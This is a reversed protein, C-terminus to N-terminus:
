GSVWSGQSETIGTDGGETQEIVLLEIAPTHWKKKEKKKDSIDCAM